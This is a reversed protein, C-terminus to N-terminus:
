NKTEQILEKLLIIQWLNFKHKCNLKEIKLKKNLIGIKQLESIGQYLTDIETECFITDKQNSQNDTIQKYIPRAKLQEIANNKIQFLYNLFADSPIKNTLEIEEFISAKSLTQMRIKGQGYEWEAYIIDALQQPEAIRFTDKELKKELFEEDFIRANIIQNERQKQYYSALKEPSHLFNRKWHWLSFKKNEPFLINQEIIQTRDIGLLISCLQNQVFSTSSQHDIFTKFDQAEQIDYFPIEAKQLLRKLDKNLLEQTNSIQTNKNNQFLYDKSIKIFDEDEIDITSLRFWTRMKVKSTQLDITLFNGGPLNVINSYITENRKNPNQRLGFHVFNILITENFQIPINAKALQLISNSFLLYDFKGRFTFHAYYYLPFTGWRDQYIGIKAQLKSFILIQFKGEIEKTFNEEKQIWLNLISKAPEDCDQQQIKIEYYIVACVFAENEYLNLQKIENQSFIFDQSNENHYDISLPQKLTMGKGIIGIFYKM